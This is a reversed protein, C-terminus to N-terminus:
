MGICFDMINTCKRITEEIPIGKHFYAVIADREVRGIDKSNNKNMKGDKLLRGKVKAKGDAKVAVYCNVNEQYIAKFDTFELKGMVTNGVEITNGVKREWEECIRIYTDELDLDYLCLIGDTNASVVKIGHLELEEVLMLIEFQNGITCMYM